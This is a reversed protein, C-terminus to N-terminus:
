AVEFIRFAASRVAIRVSPNRPSASAEIALTECRRICVRRAASSWPTSSAASAPLMSSVRVQAIAAPVLISTRWSNKVSRRPALEQLRQRGLLAGDGLSKLADRKGVMVDRKTQGGVAAGDEIQRAGVRHEFSKALHEIGLDRGPHKPEVEIAGSNARLPQYCGTLLRKRGAPH